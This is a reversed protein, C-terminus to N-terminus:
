FFIISIHQSTIFTIQRDFLQNEISDKKNINFSENFNNVSGDYNLFENSVFDEFDDNFKIQFRKIDIKKDIM